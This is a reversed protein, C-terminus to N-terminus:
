LTFELKSKIYALKSEKHVKNKDINLNDLEIAQLQKELEVKDQGLLQKQEELLM